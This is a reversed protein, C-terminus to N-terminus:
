TNHQGIKALELVMDAFANKEMPKLLQKFVGHQKLWYPDIEEISGSLICYQTKGSVDMEKLRSILHLGDMGPMNFDTVVLEPLVNDLGSSQLRAAFWDVVEQPSQFLLINEACDLQTILLHNIFGSLEDDDVLIIQRLKKM